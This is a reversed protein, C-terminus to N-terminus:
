REERIDPKSLLVDDMTVNDLWIDDFEMPTVACSAMAICLAMVIGTAIVFYPAYDVDM